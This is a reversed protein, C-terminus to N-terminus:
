FGPITVAVEGSASLDRTVCVIPVRANRIERGSPAPKSADVPVNGVCVGYRGPALGEFAIPGRGESLFVSTPQTPALRALLGDMTDGDQAQLPPSALMVQAAAVPKGGDARVKVAVGLPGTRVELDAHGRKGPEITVARILMDKNRNVFAYLLQPGAALTDLAFGGDPGSLVFFNATKYQRTAIVVTEPFPRGDRTVRGELSGTPQLVLDIQASLPHPPLPITESRGQGEREAVVVLPGPHFGSLVFHGDDDSTTEQSDGSEDPIYLQKGGGSLFEGAVVKARPVPAGDPALVRGTISRGRKVTIVGLDKRGGEAVPLDELAKTAFMPGTIVLDHTGAPVALSFAGDTGLFPTPSGPGFAVSFSEAPKGDELAVRGIVRGDGRVVVRVDRDGPHAEVEPQLARQEPPAGPRVAQLTYRGDPLGTFSFRGGADSILTPIGRLDWSTLRGSKIPGTKWLESARATVQAEALPQGGGDVVLGEISGHLSLTLEVTTERAAALDTTVVPSAGAQHVAMLHVTRRPLGGLSFRGSDDTFAERLDPWLAL